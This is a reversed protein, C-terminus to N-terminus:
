RKFISSHFLFHTYYLCTYYYYKNEAFKFKNKIITFQLIEFELYNGKKWSNIALGKRLVIKQWFRKQWFSKEM